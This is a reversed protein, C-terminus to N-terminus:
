FLKSIYKPEDIIVSPNHSFLEGFSRFGWSVGVAEVGANKATIMDVDSDGFYITEGPLCGAKEIASLTTYPDPKKPVDDSAGVIVDFYGSGFFHEVMGVAAEAPKNTVVCLKIGKEKLIDLQQRIGEYLYANDLKIENYIIKFESYRQALEEDSLTDKFVRKILKKAGNGVFRKYDDVSWEADFNYKNILRNCADALDDITNVLTGDLDFVACKIKM